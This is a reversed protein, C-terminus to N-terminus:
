RSTRPTRRRTLRLRTRRKCSSTTIPASAGGAHQFVIKVPGVGYVWWITRIGSGYPDGLAGAQTIESSIKAALVPMPFAPVTVSETGEYDNTSTVDSQAGGTASWSLGHPLLRALM